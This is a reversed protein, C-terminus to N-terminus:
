FSYAFHQGKPKTVGEVGYRDKQATIYGWAANVQQRDAVRFGYHNMLPKDKASPGGEHVVLRWDTNPHKLTRERERKGVIELALLETLVPITEGFDRCDYHGHTLGAPKLM